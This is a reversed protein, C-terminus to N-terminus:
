GEAKLNQSLRRKVMTLVSRNLMKQESFVKMLDARKLVRVSGNERAIVNATRKVEKVLSIEGVIDGQSLTAVVRDPAENTSIDFTGSEIIYAEQGTEGQRILYQGRKLMKKGVAAMLRGIEESGGIRLRLDEVYGNLQEAQASMEVSASASKEAHAANQRTVDKIEAIAAHVEQIERSQRTSAGSIRDMLSGTQDVSEVVDSFADDSKGALDAGEDIRRITEALIGTTTAAAESTRLALNRVERAVVAFGAGADGARAAEVAANLALINTQFAVDDITRIINASEKGAASISEMVGILEGMFRRAGALTERCRCMFDDAKQASAANEKTVSSIKELVDVVQALSEAQRGTGDATVQNVSSVQISAASVQAAAQALGEIAQITPRSISRHVSYLVFVATLGTLVWAAVILFVGKRYLTGAEDLLRAVGEAPVVVGSSSVPAEGYGAASRGSDGLVTTLQQMISAHRKMVWGASAGISLSLLVLLSIYVALKRVIGDLRM